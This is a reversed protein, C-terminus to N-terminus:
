FEVTVNVFVESGPVKGTIVLPTTVEHLVFGGNSLLHYM